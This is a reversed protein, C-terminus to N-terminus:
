IFVKTHDSTYSFAAMMFCAQNGSLSVILSSIIAISWVGLLKDFYVSLWLLVNQLIFSAIVFLMPRKRGYTDSWAGVLFVLMIPLANELITRTMMATGLMKQLSENEGTLGEM